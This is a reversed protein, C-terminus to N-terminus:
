KNREILARENRELLLLPDVGAAMLAREEYGRRNIEDIEEDTLYRLTGDEEEILCERRDKLEAILRLIKEAREEAETEPTDLDVEVPDAALIDTVLAELAAIGRDFDDDDRLTEGRALRAACERARSSRAERARLEEHARLEENVAALQEEIREM